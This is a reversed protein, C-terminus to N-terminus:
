RPPRRGEQGLASDKLWTEIATSQYSFDVNGTAMLPQLATRVTPTNPVDACPLRPAVHAPTGADLNGGDYVDNGFYGNAGYRRCRPRRHRVILTDDFQGKEKLKDIIRGLQDDANKAIFPM